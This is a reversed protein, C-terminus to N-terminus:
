SSQYALDRFTASQSAEPTCIVAIEESEVIRSRGLYGGDPCDLRHKFQQVSGRHSVLLNGFLTRQVEPTRDREPPAVGHRTIASSGVDRHGAPDLFDRTSRERRREIGDRWLLKRQLVVHKATFLDCPDQRPSCRAPLEGADPQEFQLAKGAPTFHEAHQG